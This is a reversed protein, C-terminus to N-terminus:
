ILFLLEVRPSARRLAHMKMSYTAQEKRTQLSFRKHATVTFAELVVATDLVFEFFKLENEMGEIGQIEISKLHHICQFLEAWDEDM